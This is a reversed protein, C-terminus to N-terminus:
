KRNNYSSKNSNKWATMLKDRTEAPLAKCHAPYHDTSGPCNWCNRVKEKDTNKGGGSDKNNRSPSNSQTQFLPNKGSSQRKRDNINKEKANEAKRKKNPSSTAAKINVTSSSDSLHSAARSDWNSVIDRAELYTKIDKLGNRWQEEKFGHIYIHKCNLVLHSAWCIQVEPDDKKVGLNILKDQFKESAAIFDALDQGKVMKNLAYELKIQAVRTFIYTEDCQKMSINDKLHEGMVLWMLRLEANRRHTDYLTNTKLSNLASEDIYGNLVGGLNKCDILWKRNYKDVMDAFKEPFKVATNDFVDAEKALLGRTPECGVWEKTSTTPDVVRPHDKDYVEAPRTGFMMWEIAEKNLSINKILDSEIHRSWTIFEGKKLVLTKNSSM